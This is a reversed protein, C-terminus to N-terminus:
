LKQLLTGFDANMDMFRQVVKGCFDDDVLAKVAEPDSAMTADIKFTQEYPGAEFKILYRNNWMFITILMQPHPITGLTKM